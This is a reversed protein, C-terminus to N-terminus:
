IHKNKVIRIAKDIIEKEEETLNFIGSFRFSNELLHAIKVIIENKETKNEIKQTM